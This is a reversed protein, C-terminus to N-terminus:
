DGAPHEYNDFGGTLSCIYRIVPLLSCIYRNVVLFTKGYIARHGRTRCSPYDCQPQMKYHVIIVQSLRM